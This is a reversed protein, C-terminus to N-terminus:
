LFHGFRVGVIFIFAVLLPFAFADTARLRSGSSKGGLARILEREAFLFLALLVAILGIGAARNAWGHAVVRRAADLVLSTM